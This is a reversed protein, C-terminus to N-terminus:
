SEHELFQIVLTPVGVGDGGGACAAVVVVVGSFSDASWSIVFFVLSLPLTHPHSFPLLLNRRLSLFGFLVLFSRTTSPGSM